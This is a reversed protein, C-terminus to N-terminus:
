TNNMLPLTKWTRSNISCTFSILLRIITNLFSFWTTSLPLGQFAKLRWQVRIGSIYGAQLLNQFVTGSLYYFFAFCPMLFSVDYFECWRRCWHSWVCHQNSAIVITSAVSIQFRFFYCILSSMQVCSIFIENQTICHEWCPFTLLGIRLVNAPVIGQLSLGIKPSVLQM